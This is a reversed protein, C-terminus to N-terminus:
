RPQSIDHTVPGARFTVLPAAARGGLTLTVVDGPRFCGPHTASGAYVELRYAGSADSVAGSSCVVGGNRTEIQQGGAPTGGRRAVGSLVMSGAKAAPSPSPMMPKGAAAPQAALVVPSAESTEVIELAFNGYGHVCRKTVWDRSELLAPGELGLITPSWVDLVLSLGDNSDGRVWAEVKGTIDVRFLDQGARARLGPRGERVATIRDGPWLATRRNWEAGPAVEEIILNRDNCVPDGINPLGARPLERRFTLYARYQGARIGRGPLGSVDFQVLGQFDRTIQDGCPLPQTYPAATLSRGVEVMGPGGPRNERPFTPIAEARAACWFLEDSHFEVSSRSDGTRVPALSFWSAEASRVAGLAMGLAIGAGFALLGLRQWVVCTRSGISKM